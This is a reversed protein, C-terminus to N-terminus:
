TDLIKNFVSDNAFYTRAIEKAASAHKHYNGSITEMAVAAEENNKVAFLGVGCPLHKSFGTDQVVAPRGYYLYYASRDSMQGSQTEVFVNKGVSFEGKSNAIYTLYSTISKSVGDANRVNWGKEELRQRPVSSGSAAVELKEKTHAPLNIFKEFEIGKQGYKKGKYEIDKNSQWNMVTTFPANPNPLAEIEDDPLLPFFNHYWQIGALPIGCDDRGVNMGHTLYLDYKPVIGGSAILKMLKMQLWGSEGDILITKPIRSSEESWEGWEMDIYIDASNFIDTIKEKSLGHYNGFYDVHCWRERLNYRKAISSMVGLGYSCDNTMIKKAVDFCSHEWLTKEVFYVDHGLKRLGTVYSLFYLNMGGMPYKVITGNLIIRAM